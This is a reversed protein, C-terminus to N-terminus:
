AIMKLKRGFNESIMLERGAAIIPPTLKISYPMIEAMPMRLTTYFWTSKVLDLFRIIAATIRTQPSPKEFPRVKVIPVVAMVSVPRAMAAIAPMRKFAM